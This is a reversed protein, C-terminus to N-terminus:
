KNPFFGMNILYVITASTSALTFVSFILGILKFYGITRDIPAALSLIVASIALGGYFLDFSKSSLIGQNELNFKIM